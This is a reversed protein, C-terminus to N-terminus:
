LQHDTLADKDRVYSRSLLFARVRALVNCWPRLVDALLTQVVAMEFLLDPTKVFIEGWDVLRARDWERVFVM